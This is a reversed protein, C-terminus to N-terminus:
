KSASGISYVHQFAVYNKPSSIPSGDNYEIKKFGTVRNDILLENVRDGIWASRQDTEYDEHCLIDIVIEQNATKYNHSTPRRRGAYLYIRCIEKDVLDDSKPVLKICEERIGWQEDLPLDNINVLSDDLPNPIGNPMDEPKYHLLRLLTEDYLFLKYIDELNKRMGM